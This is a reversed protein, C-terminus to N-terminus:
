GEELFDLERNIESLYTLFLKRKSRSVKVKTNDKLKLYGGDTASDYYADVFNVNVIFSAHVRIFPFPKLQQEFFRILKNSIIDPQNKIHITTKIEGAITELWVIQEVHVFKFGYSTPILVQRLLLVRKIHKLEIREKVKNVAEEFQDLDLPKLLYDHLGLLKAEERFEPYATIFIVEFVRKPFATLLDFGTKGKLRIDLFVFDPKRKKILSIADIVNVAAGIVDVKVKTEKIFIKILDHNAQEDDIILATLM